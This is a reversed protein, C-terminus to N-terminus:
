GTLTPRPIRQAEQVPHHSHVTEESKELFDSFDESFNASVGLCIDIPTYKPRATLETVKIGSVFRGIEKNRNPAQEKHLWCFPM